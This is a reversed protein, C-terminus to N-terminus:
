RVLAQDGGRDSYAEEIKEGCAAILISAELVANKVNGSERSAYIRTAVEILEKRLRRKQAQTKSRM